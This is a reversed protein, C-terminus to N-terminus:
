FPEQERISGGPGWLPKGKKKRLKGSSRGKMRGDDSSSSVRIGKGLKEGMVRDGLDGSEGMIVKENIRANREVWRDAIFLLWGRLWRQINLSFSFLTNLPFLLIFIVIRLHSPQRLGLIWISTSRINSTSRTSQRAFTLWIIDLLGGPHQAKVRESFYFYPFHNSPGWNHSANM